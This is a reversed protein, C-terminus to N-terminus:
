SGIELWKRIFTRCHVKDFFFFAKCLKQFTLHKAYKVQESRPWVNLDLHTIKNSNKAIINLFEISNDCYLGIVLGYQEVNKLLKFGNIFEDTMKVEGYNFYSICRVNVFRQWIRISTDNKM